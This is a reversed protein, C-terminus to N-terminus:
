RALEVTAVIREIISDYGTLARQNEVFKKPASWELVLEDSVVLLYFYTRDGYPAPYGTLKFLGFKMAPMRWQPQAFQKQFFRASAGTHPVITISTVDGIPIARVSRNGLIRKEVVVVADKWVASSENPPYSGVIFTSPYQFKYGLREDKYTVAGQQAPSALSLMLACLVSSRVKPIDSTGPSSQIVKDKLFPGAGAM